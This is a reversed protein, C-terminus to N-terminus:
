STWGTLLRRQTDSVVLKVLEDPTLDTPIPADIM